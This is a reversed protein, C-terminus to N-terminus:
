RFRSAYISFRGGPDIKSWVATARGSKDMAIQAGVGDSDVLAAAAGWGVSASFHSAMISPIGAADVQRTVVIADGNPAGAMRPGEDSRGALGPVATPASCATLPGPPCRRSYLTQVSGALQVWVILTNGAADVVLQPASVQGARSDDFTVPASWGASGLRSAFLTPRGAVSEIWSAIASGDAAAAVAQQQAIGSGTNVRVPTAWGTAKAHVNAWLEISFVGQSKGWVSVAGGSGYGSVQPSISDFAATEILTTSRWGFDNRDWVCGVNFECPVFLFQRQFIRYAAPVRSPEYQTWVNFVDHGSSDFSTQHDSANGGFGLQRANDASFLGDYVNGWISYNANGDDYGWSIVARGFAGMAVRPSYAGGASRGVGTATLREVLEAGQWAGDRYRNAYISFQAGDHQAWVATAQTASTPLDETTAAIAPESAPNDSTELLVPTSWARAAAIAATAFTWSHAAALPNGALDKVAASVTASHATAGALPAAPAFSATRGSASVSGAVPVGAASVTFSAGTLTAADIAESFTVTIAATTAVASASAAPSTAQITPPTTDAAAGAVDEGTGCAAVLLAAAALLWAAQRRLGPDPIGSTERAAM